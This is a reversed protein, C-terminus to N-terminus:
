TTFLTRRMTRRAPVTEVGHRTVQTCGARSTDLLCHPHAGASAQM